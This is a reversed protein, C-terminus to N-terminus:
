PYELEDAMENLRDQFVKDFADRCQHCDELLRRRPDPHFEFIEGVTWDKVAGSTEQMIVGLAHEELKDAPFEHAIQEAWPVHACPCEVTSLSLVPLPEPAAPPRELVVATGRQMISSRETNWRSSTNRSRKQSTTM